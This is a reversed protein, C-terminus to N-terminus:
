WCPRVRVVLYLDSNAAHPGDATQGCGAICLVTGDRIRPPLRLQLLRSQRVTGQGGCALCPGTAADAQGECALCTQSVSIRVEFPGGRAAEEPVLRLEAEIDLETRPASQGESAAARPVKGWAQSSKEFEQRTHGAQDRPHKAPRQRCNRSRDYERRKEANSLVDHAEKAAKFLAVADAEEPRTDPHYKRALKRFAADIEKATATSPLGLVLYHDKM